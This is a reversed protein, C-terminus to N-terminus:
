SFFTSGSTCAWVFYKSSATTSIRTFPCAPTSDFIQYIALDRKWAGCHTAALIGADQGSSKKTTADANRRSDTAAWSPTAPSRGCQGNGDAPESCHRRSGEEDVDAGARDFQGTCIKRKKVVCVNM